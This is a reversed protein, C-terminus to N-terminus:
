CENTCTSNEYEYKYKNNTYTIIVCGDFTEFSEEEEESNKRYKPNEIDDSTLLGEQQLTQVSVGCSSGETQSPLKLSNKSMYTQATNEITNIQEDYAKKRSYNLATNITPVAIMAIIGLIVIVGLLEVLTFGKKENKKM